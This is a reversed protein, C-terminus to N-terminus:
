ARGPLPQQNVFHWRQQDQTSFFFLAYPHQSLLRHVVPRELTLLLRDSALRAHLIQFEGHAAIIQPDEVLAERATQSWDQRSLSARVPDYNLEAFLARATSLDNLNRLIQEVSRGVNAPM